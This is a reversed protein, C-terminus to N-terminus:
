HYSIIFSTGQFSLVIWDRMGAGTEEAKAAAITCLTTTCGAEAERRWLGARMCDCIPKLELGISSM